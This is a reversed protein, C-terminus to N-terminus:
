NRAQKLFRTIIKKCFRQTSEDEEEAMKSLFEFDEKNFYLTISHKIKEDENKRKRGPKSREAQEFTKQETVKSKLAQEITSNKTQM